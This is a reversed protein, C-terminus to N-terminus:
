TEAKEIELCSPPVKLNEWAKARDICQTGLPFDWLWASGVAAWALCPRLDLVFWSACAADMQTFCLYDWTGWLPSTTSIPLGSVGQKEWSLFIVFVFSYTGMGMCIIVPLPYALLRLPCGWNRDCVLLCHLPTHPTRRASAEMVGKKTKDTYLQPFKFFLLSSSREASPWLIHISWTKAPANALSLQVDFLPTRVRCLNISFYSIPLSSLLVTPLRAM